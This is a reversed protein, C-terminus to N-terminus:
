AGQGRLPVVNNGQPPSVIRRLESAWAELARRMQPEYKHQDYVRQLGRRGHGIVMEAVTDNIELEALKTRVTRRLDHTQWPTLTVAAPDDGRRRAAARLYRLMLADLKLKAQHLILAPREGFTFSFLCDGSKFRPLEEIITLADTTLPVLHSVGSKFREPPIIWAKRDFDFERWRAGAAETRRVGTLALLRFMGQWPYPLRKTARWFAALELDSLTRQRPEKRRSVLEGVKVRDCPSRELDYSGRNIAWNFLARAVGFAAAAYIPAGRDNVQEVLKVVDRRTIDNVPKDGWAPVLVNIVIREVSRARRFGAVKRKLYDEAVRAFLGQQQQHQQESARRVEDARRRAQVQPDEGKRILQLWSRALDRADDITVAGVLGIVRRTPHKAGPFRAHLAFVKRKAAMRVILGPVVADRLEPRRKGAPDPKLAAIRRDTLNVRM